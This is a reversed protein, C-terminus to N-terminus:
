IAVVKLRETNRIRKLQRVVDFQTAYFLADIENPDKIQNYIVFHAFRYKRDRIERIRM